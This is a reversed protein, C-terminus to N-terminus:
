KIQEVLYGAARAVLQNSSLDLPWDGHGQGRFVSVNIPNGAVQSFSSFHSRDAESADQVVCGKSKLYKEVKRSPVLADNESLFVATPVCPIQETFLSIRAWPFGRQITWNVNVDTRIMHSTSGPDARHYVFQKTLKPYHLCFCIPDLFMVAAVATPAYKCMFSVWSTGYSHGMFAGRGFGHCALISMLTGSVAAPPLVSNPGLWPRFGSVYPIEPLILPRGQKLLEDILSMYFILGVGIGHCFVIPVDEDGKHSDHGDSSSNNGPHYYYSIPGVRLRRFGRMRMLVRLGGETVLLILIHFILPYSSIDMLPDASYKLYRPPEDSHLLNKGVYGTVQFFSAMASREVGELAEYCQSIKKMLDAMQKSPISTAMGRMQSLTQQYNKLQQRLAKRKFSIDSATRLREKMKWMSNWADAIQSQTAHSFATLQKDVKGDKEILAFYAHEYINSATAVATQEADHLQQIKEAAFNRIDQVAHKPSSLTKKACWDKYNEYLNSFYSSHSEDRNEKFHFSKVPKPRSQMMKLRNKSANRPSLGYKPMLHHRRTPTPPQLISLNGECAEKKEDGGVVDGESDIGFLEISIEYELDEVFQRLQKSEDQTLHEINRGEFLSWCLFDLVDYKTLSELKEGFFWESIFSVCEDEGDMMLQWLEDREDLELMPASRLSLELTDLSNLWKRHLFLIVYFVGEIAAWVEIAFSSSTMTRAVWVGISFYKQVFQGELMTHPFSFCLERWLVLIIYVYACPVTLKVSSFFIGMPSIYGIANQEMPLDATSIQSSRKKTFYQAVPSRAGMAQKKSASSPRTM